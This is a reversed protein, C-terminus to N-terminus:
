KQFICILILKGITLISGFFLMIVVQGNRSIYVIIYGVAMNLLLWFILFNSRFNRYKISKEKEVQAAVAQSVTPRSGWSIDHINSIAFITFINIYTPAMFISYVVGKLFDVVKLKNINMILPIVYSLVYVSLFIVSLSSKTEEM